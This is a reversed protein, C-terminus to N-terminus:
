AAVGGAGGGAPAVALRALREIAAAAREGLRDPDEAAAEFAYTVLADAALLVVAQARDRCGAELARALLAEAAGLSAEPMEAADRALSAGLAERLVVALEAPPEPTRTDLWEGITM